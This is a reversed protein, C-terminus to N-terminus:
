TREALVSVYRLLGSDAAARALLAVQFQDKAARMAVAGHAPPSIVAQKSSSDCTPMMSRSRRRIPSLRM